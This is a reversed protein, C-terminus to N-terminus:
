SSVKKCSRAYFLFAFIIGILVYLCDIVYFTEDSLVFTRDTIDILWSLAIYWLSIRHINCYGFVFSSLLMFLGPLLSLGSMFSLVSIKIKFLWLVSNVFYCAAIILPLYKVSLLLYRRFKSRVVDANRGEM